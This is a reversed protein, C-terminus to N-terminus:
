LVDLDPEIVYAVMPLVPPYFATSAAPLTQGVDAVHTIQEPGVARMIAVADAGGKVAALAAELSTVTSQKADKAFRPTFLHDVIVPDLRQLARHVAIGETTATVDPSLTLKWADPDGKFVVLFAPQHAISDALAARLAKPNDAAGAIKDVLFTPKAGALVADKAISGRLVRHRPAVALMPDDMATLCMLGYRATSQPALNGGADLKAEHALMAEYVGHGELVQIKKPAITNRIKGFMEADSVRWLRHSVDDITVELNPRDNDAKRLIREIEGAADRYGALVPTLEISTDSIARLATEREAPDTAETARVMPDNWAALRVVAFFSKRTFVRGDDPNKFIQHYRYLARSSDRALEGKAIKGPTDTLKKTPDVVVGRFGAIQPM